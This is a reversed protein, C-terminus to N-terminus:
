TAMRLRRHYDWSKRCAPAYRGSNNKVYNRRFKVPRRGNKVPRGPEKIRNIKRKQEDATLREMMLHCAAMHGNRMSLKTRKGAGSRRMVADQTSLVAAQATQRIQSIEKSLRLAASKTQLTPMCALLGQTLTSRISFLDAAAERTIQGSFVVVRDAVDSIVGLDHTIIMIDNRIRREAEQDFGYDAGTNNCM